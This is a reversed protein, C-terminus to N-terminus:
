KKVLYGKRRLATAFASANKEPVVLRREGAPLCLKRLVPDGAILGATDADCCEIIRGLGGDRLKEARAEVDDLFVSVTQPLDKDNHASLYERITGFTLGAELSDFLSSRSLAWVRDSKKEAIRDLFLRDAPPVDGTAAIEHNPLVTFLPMKEREPPEYEKTMGLIWAGLKTLRLYMLGDYRSICSYNEAGWLERTDALAGWPPVLAVDIVGLTAAYELLFARSFRGDVHDWTIHNYGLSGYQHEAIYLAWYDRAVDFAHGSAKLFRFFETTSIWQSPELDSLAAGLAQRCGDAKYLPHRKSKQGKIIEIRSLEHFDRNVLWCEWLGKLTHQPEESLAKQGKSTLRLKGGDAKALGGAQVLMCWAFPRIGAEGLRVDYDNVELDSPYFDGRLFAQRVLAAGAASIHGTTGSAGAKGGSLAHLVATLDHLAAAETLHTELEEKDELVTKVHKPLEEVYAAKLKPPKPVFERLLTLLEPPIVGRYLFLYLVNGPDKKGREPFPSKGYKAMFRGADIRGDPSVLAEQVVRKETEGLKNYLLAAAEKNTVLRALYPVLDSKRQSPASGINKALWFSDAGRALVEMALRLLGRTADASMLELGHSVSTPIEDFRM